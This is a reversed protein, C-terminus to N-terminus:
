WDICMNPNQNIIDQFPNEPFGAGRLIDVSCTVGCNDGKRGQANTKQDNQCSLEDSGRIDEDIWEKVNSLKEAAWKGTPGLNIAQCNLIIKILM